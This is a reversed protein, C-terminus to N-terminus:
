EPILQYVEHSSMIKHTDLVITDLVVSRPVPIILQVNLVSKQSMSEKKSM